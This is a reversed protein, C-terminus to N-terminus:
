CIINQCIIILDGSSFTLTANAKLNNKIKEEYKHPSVFITMTKLILICNNVLPFYCKIKGM